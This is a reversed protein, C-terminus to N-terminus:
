LLSDEDLDQSFSPNKVQILAQAYMKVQVSVRNKLLIHVYEQIEPEAQCSHVM